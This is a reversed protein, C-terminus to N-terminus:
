KKAAEHEIVYFGLEKANWVVKYTDEDYSTEIATRKGDEAIAYVKLGSETEKDRTRYPIQMVMEGEIDELMEKGSAIAFVYAPRDGLDKKQAKTLAEAESTKVDNSKVMIVAVFKGEAEEVIDALAEADFKISRGNILTVELAKVDSKADNAAKAIEKVLDTPIRVTNIYNLYSEAKFKLEITGEKNPNDLIKELNKDSMAHLNVAYGDVTAYLKVGAITFDARTAIVQLTATEYKVLEYNANDITAEAMNNWYITHKGMPKIVDDMSAGSAVYVSLKPAPSVTVKDSGCLGSYSLWLGPYADNQTITYGAPGVTLKAKEITFTTEVSNGNFSVIVKHDGANKFNGSYSVSFANASLVTGGAKVTVTPKQVAGNYTTKTSNLSVTINTACEKCLTCRGDVGYTCAGYSGYAQNCTTCVALQKGCATGGGCTGYSGYAQKCTTCVALQKGCATGGGCTGYSGYAQECTTCVALQKGCAIGGGCTGYSGYAQKCTTCVALQKGCATGGGCTGYSGYAQECITCVALQKGCAEGGTCTGYSGHAEKCVSCVALKKGCAVGDCTGYSGHAEKCVSCVALRKGCAVGDCTGYSGYSQNCTACVALQKGCAPTKPTHQCDSAPQPDPDPDSNLEEDPIPDSIPLINGESSGGEAFAVVTLASLLMVMCLLAFVKRFQIKKVKM